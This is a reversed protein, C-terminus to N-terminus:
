IKPPAVDVDVNEESVFLVQTKFSPFHCSNLGVVEGDLRPPGAIAYSGM